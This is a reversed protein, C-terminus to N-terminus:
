RALPGHGSQYGNCQGRPCCQGSACPGSAVPGPRRAEQAAPAQEQCRITNPLYRPEPPLVPASTLVLPETSASLSAAAPAPQPVPLVGNTFPLTASTSSLSSLLWCLVSCATATWILIRVM